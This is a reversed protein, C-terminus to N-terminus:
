AGYKGYKKRSSFFGCILAAPLIIGATYLFHGKGARGIFLSVTLLILDYVAGCILAATLKGNKSRMACIGCGLLASLAIILYAGIGSLEIRILGKTIGLALLASFVATAACSAAAGTGITLIARGRESLKRKQFRKSSKM